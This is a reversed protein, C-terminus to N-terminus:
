KKAQSTDKGCAPYSDVGGDLEQTRVVCKDWAFHASRRFEGRDYFCACDLTAANEEGVVADESIKEMGKGDDGRGIEFIIGGTEVGRLALLISALKIQFFGENGYYMSELFLALKRRYVDIVDGGVRSLHGSTHFPYPIGRYRDAERPRPAEEFNDTLYVDSFCFGASRPIPTDCIRLFYKALDAIASSKDIDGSYAQVQDAVREARHARYPRNKTNARTHDSNTKALMCLDDIINRCDTNRSFCQDAKCKVPAWDWDPKGEAIRLFLGELAILLTNFQVVLRPTQSWSGNSYRFAQFNHARWSAGDFILFLALKHEM